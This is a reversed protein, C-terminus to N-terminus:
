IYRRSHLCDSGWVVCGNWPIIENMGVFGSICTCYPYEKHVYNLNIIVSKSHGM